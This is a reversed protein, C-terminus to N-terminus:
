LKVELNIGMKVGLKKGLMDVFKNCLLLHLTIRGELLQLSIGNNSPVQLFLGVGKFIQM